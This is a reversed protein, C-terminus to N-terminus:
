DHIRVVGDNKNSCYSATSVIQLGGLETDSGMSLFGAESFSTLAQKVQPIIQVRGLSPGRAVDL